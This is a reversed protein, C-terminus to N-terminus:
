LCSLPIAPKGLMCAHMLQLAQKSFTLKCAKAASKTHARHCPFAATLLLELFGEGERSAIQTAPCVQYFVKFLM